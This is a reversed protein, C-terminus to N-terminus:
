QSAIAAVALLARLVVAQPSAGFELDWVDFLSSAGVDLTHASSKLKTILAKTPRKPNTSGIAHRAATKQSSPDIKRV